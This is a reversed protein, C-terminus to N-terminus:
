PAVEVEPAEVRLSRGTIRKALRSGARMAPREVALYTFPTALAVAAATVLLILPLAETPLHQTVGAADEFLVSLVVGHLLYIGYSCEGLVLAGRTRLLGFLDNGCAVCIFFLGFLPMATGYPTPAVTAGFGLAALACVSAVPGHLRRALEDRCQIEYAIMGIAFLPLFTLMAWTAGLTRAAVSGALLMAPVTWSPLRGRILDTAAACAPLVFLYFLWEYWLSWLVYANLRGSDPYGLLWPEGWASIWKLMALPFGWGPGQGTRLAILAVILAVSVAVLPVIRFVRTIYVAPWSCARFGALIRPYFVLGTTMFFLAVGGAGFQNFLNIEPATWGGGLRAVQMRIIFHHVLVCLALYGRLGDVCGIRRAGSPLPFSKRTVLGALATALVLAAGTGALIAVVPYPIVGRRKWAFSPPPGDGNPRPWVPGEREQRCLDSQAPDYFRAM